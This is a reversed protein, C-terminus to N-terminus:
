EAILSPLPLFPQTLSIHGNLTEREGGNVLIFVKKIPKFNHTLSNVLCYVTAMEASSGSPHRDGFERSFDVVATGDRTIFVQRLESEPPLPSILGAQSGKILEQVLRRAEWEVSPGAVISREEPHLLGDAESLFFLIVRKMATEEPPLPTEEPGPVGAEIEPAEGNGSFFFLAAALVLTLSLVVLVLIRQRSM